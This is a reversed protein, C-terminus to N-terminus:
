VGAPKDAINDVEVDDIDRWRTDASHGTRGLDVQDAYTGM